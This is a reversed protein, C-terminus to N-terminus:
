ILNQKIKDFKKDSNFEQWDLDNKWRNHALFKDQFIDSASQLSNLEWYPICYIPIRNALCYSIKRRDREKASEYEARSHYFKPIFQYHGEGQYEVICPRAGQVYFDFRLLGKRLDKFTKERQFNYKDKLLLEIIKEEGKTAKM